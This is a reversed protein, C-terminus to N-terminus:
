GGNGAIRQEPPRAPPPRPPEGGPQEGVSGGRELRLQLLHVAAALVFLGLTIWFGYLLTVASFGLARLTPSLALVLLSVAGTAGAVAAGILRTRTVRVFVLALGVVTTTLAIVAFPEPPIPFEPEADSDPPAVASAPDFGERLEGGKILQVGSLTQDVQKMGM